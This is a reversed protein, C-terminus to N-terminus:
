NFKMFTKKVVPQTKQKGVNILYHVKIGAFMYYDNVHSSGRQDNKRGYGNFTQYIKGDAGIYTMNGNMEALLRNLESVRSVNTTAAIQELSRNSMTRALDSDLDWMNPYNGSVDDLYDTFTWRFGSEICIDLRANYKIRVGLSIPIVLQRLSYPKAYGEKGQGETNLPKLDIWASGFAVPTKAQPNHWLLGVGTSIYPSVNKRRYYLGKSPFIEYTGILSLEKLTNRFHLNRIYRYRGLEDRPDSRSDDGRIQAIAFNIGLSFHPTLKKSVGISGGFTIQENNLVFNSFNANLDGFYNAVFFSGNISWYNRPNLKQKREIIKYIRPTIREAGVYKKQFDYPFRVFISMRQINGFGKQSVKVKRTVEVEVSVSASDTLLNTARVYRYDFRIGDQFWSEIYGLYEEAKFDTKLIHPFLDNYVPTQQSEFYDTVNYRDNINPNGIFDLTLGYDKVFLEARRRLIEEEAVSLAFTAQAALEVCQSEKHKRIQIIKPEGVVLKPRAQLIPFRMLVDLSDTNSNIGNDIAYNGQLRKQIEVQVLYFQGDEDRQECPNKINWNYDFTIGERYWTGINSLYDGVNM